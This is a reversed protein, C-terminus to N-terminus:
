CVFRILGVKPYWVRPPVETLDELYDRIINTKQLFLGMSKYLDYRDAISADLFNTYELFLASGELGSVAFLRSLGEGVLGAVYWCYLDYDEVKEVKKTLFDAMGAGMKKAIDQIVEFYKPKVNKLAAIVNDFKELLEIEDPM